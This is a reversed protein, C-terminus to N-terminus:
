VAFPFETVPIGANTLDRFDFEKWFFVGLTLSLDTDSYINLAVGALDHECGGEIQLAIRVSHVLIFGGPWFGYPM